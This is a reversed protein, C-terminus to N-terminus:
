QNFRSKGFLEEASVEMTGDARKRVVEEGKEKLIDEINRNENEFWGLNDAILHNSKCGPCTVIVIGKEYSHRSFQKAARTDCKKCTFVMIIDKKNTNQPPEQSSQQCYGRGFGESLKQQQQFITRSYKLLQQQSSQTQHSYYNHLWVPPVYKCLDTQQLMSFGLEPRFLVNQCLVQSSLLKLAKRQVNSYM